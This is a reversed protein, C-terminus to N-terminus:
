KIKKHLLWVKAFIVELTLKSYKSYTAIDQTTYCQNNEIVLYYKSKSAIIQDIRSQFITWCYIELVVIISINSWKCRIKQLYRKLQMKINRLILFMMHQFLQKNEGMKWILTSLCFYALKLMELSHQYPMLWLIIM